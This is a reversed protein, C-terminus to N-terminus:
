LIQHTQKERGSCGRGGSQRTEVQCLARARRGGCTHVRAQEERSGRGGVFACTCCYESCAGGQQVGLMATLREVVMPVFLRNARM